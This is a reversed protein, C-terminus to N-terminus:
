RGGEHTSGSHQITVDLVPQDYATLSHSILTLAVVLALGLVWRLAACYASMVRHRVPPTPKRFGPRPKVPSVLGWTVLALGLVLEALAVASM